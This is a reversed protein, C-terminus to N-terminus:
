KMAWSFNKGMWDVVLVDLADFPVIPHRRRAEELLRRDTDLFRDPPVAELLCPQRYGNVPFVPYHSAVFKFRAGAHRELAADVWRWDVRSITGREFVGNAIVLLLDGDRWVFRLGDPAVETGKPLRPALVSGFVRASTEDFCTHNGTLHHIPLDGFSKAADFWERWEARLTEEDWGTGWFHDGTLLLFEPPPTLRRVAAGIATFTELQVGRRRATSDGLMAFRRGETEPLLAPVAAAGCLLSRRSLRPATM